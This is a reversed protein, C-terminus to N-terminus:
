RLKGVFRNQWKARAKSDYIIRSIVHGSECVDHIIDAGNRGRPVRNIKDAGGFEQFLAQFLDLEAGSGIEDATKNELRRKLEALQETLKIREISARSKETAIADALKKEAAERAVRVRAAITAEQNARFARIQAQAAKAADGKATEIASKAEREM